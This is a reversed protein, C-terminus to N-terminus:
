KVYDFLNDIKKKLGASAELLPLRVSAQSIGMKSLLYKVGVPNGEEYMLGNIDSIKFLEKTAKDFSGVFAYEKMKKFIVPYANALVSIVGKGGMAYLTTTLM